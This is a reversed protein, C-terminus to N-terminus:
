QHPRPKSEAVGSNTVEVFTVKRQFEEISRAGGYTMSSKLSGIIRDILDQTSETIETMFHIGEPVTGKKLGGKFDVQFDKSAQGRYKKVIKFSDGEKKKLINVEKEFEKSTLSVLPHCKYLGTKDFVELYKQGASEFTKSFVSGMMVTCAGAGLAKAIDNPGRAGGDSIIPVRLKQAIEYCDLIATFQPVGFGTVMRTTCAAGSGVGIKVADAGANVLDQYGMATCVNGAIVEKDPLEKKFKKITKIMMTSHGHAIDICVGRAGMKLLDLSNNVDDDNTGSSIYCKDGFEEVLEKQKEISAFRHFIPYGGNAIIIRAMEPSIVTDMNAPILPFATKTKKTLWTEVSPLTRSPINNFQPVLAVDDFTLARSMRRYM